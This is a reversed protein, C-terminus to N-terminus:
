PENRGQPGTFPEERDPASPRRAGQTLGTVVGGAGKGPKTIRDLHSGSPSGREPRATTAQSDVLIRAREAPTTGGWVGYSEHHALASALCWQCSECSACLRRALDYAGPHDADVWSKEGDPFFLEPTRTQCPTRIGLSARRITRRRFRGDIM